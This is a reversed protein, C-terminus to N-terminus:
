NLYLYNDSAIWNKEFPFFLNFFPKWFCGESNPILLSPPPLNHLLGLDTGSEAPTRLLVRRVLPSSWIAFTRHLTSRMKQATTVQPRRLPRLRVSFPLFRLCQLHVRPLIRRGRLHCLNTCGVSRYQLFWHHRHFIRILYCPIRVLHFHHLMERITRCVAWSCHRLSPHLLDM